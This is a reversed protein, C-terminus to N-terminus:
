PATSSEEYWTGQHWLIPSLYGMEEIVETPKNSITISGELNKYYDVADLQAYVTEGSACEFETEFNSRREVQNINLKHNGPEIIKQIYTGHLNNNAHHSCFKGAPALDVIQRHDLSVKEM